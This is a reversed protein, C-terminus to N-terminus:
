NEEKNENNEEAMNITEYILDSIEKIKKDFKEKNAKYLENGASSFSTRISFDIDEENRKLDGEACLDLRLIAVRTLNEM